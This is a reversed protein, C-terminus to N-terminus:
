FISPSCSCVFNSVLTKKSLRKIELELMKIHQQKDVPVPPPPMEEKFLEKKPTDKKPSPTTHWEPPTQSDQLMPTMSDLETQPHEPSDEIVLAQSDEPQPQSAPIDDPMVQTDQPEEVGQSEMDGDELPQSDEGGKEMDFEEM